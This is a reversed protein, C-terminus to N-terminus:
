PIRVAPTPALRSMLSATKGLLGGRDLITISARRSAILAEVELVHLAVTVSARRVGLLLALDEHTLCIEDGGVREHALLLWRALRQLVTCRGNFVATDAIQVSLARVAGLLHRHLGPEEALIQRLTAAPLRLAPGHRKVVCQFLPAETGLLLSLGTMGEPGILALGVPNAGRAVACLMALGDELFYVYELPRSPDELVDKEFLHAVSLHPVLRRRDAETATALLANPVAPV